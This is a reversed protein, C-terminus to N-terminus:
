LVLPMRKLCNERINIGELFCNSYRYVFRNLNETRRDQFQRFSRAQKMAGGSEVRKYFERLESKVLPM